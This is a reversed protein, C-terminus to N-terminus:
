PRHALLAGGPCPGQQTVPSHSIMEARRVNRVLDVIIMILSLTLLPPLCFELASSGWLRRSFLCGGSGVACLEPGVLM